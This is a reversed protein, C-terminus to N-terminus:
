KPPTRSQVESEVVPLGKKLVERVVENRPNKTLAAIADIRELDSEDVYVSVQTRKSKPELGV